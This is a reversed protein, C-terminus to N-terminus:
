IDVRSTLINFLKPIRERNIRYVEFQVPNGAFLKPHTARLHDPRSSVSLRYPGAQVAGVIRLAELWAWANQESSTRPTPLYFYMSGLEDVCYTSMIEVLGVPNGSVSNL